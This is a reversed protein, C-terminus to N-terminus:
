PRVRARERVDDQLPTRNGPLVLVTDPRSPGSPRCRRSSGASTRTRSSRPSRWFRPGPGLGFRARLEPEATPEVASATGPGLPIVDIRDAPRPLRTRDRGPRVRLDSDAASRTTRGPDRAVEVADADAPARRWARAAVDRGCGDGGLPHAPSDAGDLCRQAATVAAGGHWPTWYLSESLARIGRIGFLPHTMLGGRGGLAGCRDVGAGARQRVDLDAPRAPGRYRPTSSASM